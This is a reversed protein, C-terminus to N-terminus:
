ADTEGFAFYFTELSGGAAEAMRQVEARRGVGGEKLLGSVGQETYAAKILFKPMGM